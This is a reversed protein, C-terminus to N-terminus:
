YGNYDLCNYGGVRYSYFQAFQTFNIVVLTFM